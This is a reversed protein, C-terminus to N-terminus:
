VASGGLSDFFVPAKGAGVRSVCGNLFRGVFVGILRPVSPCLTGGARLSCPRSLVLPSGGLVAYLSRLVFSATYGYWPSLVFTSVGPTLFTLAINREAELLFRGLDGVLLGCSLVPLLRLRCRCPLRGRGPLFDSM